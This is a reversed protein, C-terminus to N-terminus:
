AAPAYADVLGALVEVDFPKALHAAFGREMSGVHDYEEHGSIAIMHLRERDLRLRRGLEWGDYDPLRM